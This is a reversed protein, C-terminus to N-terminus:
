SAARGQWSIFSSPGDYLRHRAADIVFGFRGVQYEGAPVLYRREEGSGRKGGITAVVEVYGPAQDSTIASVVIWDDAHLRDFARKDKESSQGSELVKGHIAEWADPYYDRITRDACAKEFDTFLDPFAQAVAAWHCDEEYFANASRLIPHVLGNREPSLHFGGHGATSHCIIGDAYVTAGQSPGWPTNARSSIEWRGLAVRQQQHLANEEVRQRFAAEDALEGNHGYFDSRKWAEIPRSIKWGSALYLKGQAGLVMAFANDGVRAAFFGEASRGFSVGPFGPADNVAAVTNPSLANM